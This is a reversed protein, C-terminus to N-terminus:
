AVCVQEHIRQVLLVGGGGKQKGTWNGQEAELHKLRTVSSGRPGVDVEERGGSSESGVRRGEKVANSGTGKEKRGREAEAAL